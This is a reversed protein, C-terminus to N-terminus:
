PGLKSNMRGVTSVVKVRELFNRWGGFVEPWKKEIVEENLELLGFCQFRSREWVSQTTELLLM